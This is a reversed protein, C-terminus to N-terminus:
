GKVAGQMIGGIIRRGLLLFVLLMPFTAIVTGALV